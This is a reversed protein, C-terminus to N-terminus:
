AQDRKRVEVPGSRSAWFKEEARLRANRARRAVPDEVLRGGKEGPARGEGRTSSM